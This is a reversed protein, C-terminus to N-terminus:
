LAYFIGYINKLLPHFYWSHSVTPLTYCEGQELRRYRQFMEDLLRYLTYGYIIYVM